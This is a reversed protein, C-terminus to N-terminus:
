RKFENKGLLPLIFYSATENLVVILLDSMFKDNDPFTVRHVAAPVSVRVAPVIVNFLM